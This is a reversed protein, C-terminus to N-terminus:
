SQSVEFSSKNLQKRYELQPEIIWSDRTANGQESAPQTTSIPNISKAPTLQLDKRDMTNYGFSVKATLNTVVQYSLMLNGNFSKTDASINQYAYAYPNTIGGYFLLSGDANVLEPTNPPLLLAEPVLDTRPLQNAEKAIM